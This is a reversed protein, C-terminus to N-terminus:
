RTERALIEGLLLSAEPSRLIQTHDYPLPWRDAADRLAEWRIASPLSITEDEVGFLLYYAVHDPLRRRSSRSAPDEFFVDRLFESGTAVDRWSPVVIPSREVGKRASELGGWPTSISVFIRVPDDRVSEHLELIFSRAVLGGVSHAVVALTDFGFRLQLRAVTQSLFESVRKLRAGSPYSFVWPQFRTRDLGAILAEFEQPYGLVGHVFLVPIREPDFPELFYIGPGVRWLFNYIDFYGLRGNEPGFRPDGLDAVAGAVAVEDLSVLLQEGHSRVTLEHVQQALPNRDHRLRGHPPIVIDIGERRDGASLEFVRGPDAVAAAAPEDDYRYNGNADEFAGVGYCGPALRAYWFGPRQLVVHQVLTVKPLLRDELEEFERPWPQGPAAVVGRDMAERLARWDEDCPLRSIFIVMWNASPEQAAVTGSVYAYAASKEETARVKWLDLASCGLVSTMALATAFASWASSGRTM